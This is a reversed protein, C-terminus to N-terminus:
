WRLKNNALGDPESLKEGYTYKALTTRRQQGPSSRERFPESETLARPVFVRM